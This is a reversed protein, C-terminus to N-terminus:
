AQAAGRRGGRGTFAGGRGCRGGRNGRSSSDGANLHSGRRPREDEYTDAITLGKNLERMRERHSNGSAIDELEEHGNKAM